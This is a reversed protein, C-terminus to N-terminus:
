KIDYDGGTWKQAIKNLTGDAKIKKIIPDIAAKLENGQKDKNLVFVSGSKNFPNGIMQVNVGNKKVIADTMVKDGLTADARGAAIDEYIDPQSNESYKLKLQNGNAANWQELFTTKSDGVSVEVIKGKLDDLTTIDTRGKKVIIFTPTSFYSESFIFTKEREPTANMQDAIIQTKNAQLSPVVTAWPGTVFEFKYQPLQKNIEKIVDVDYGTIEGSSDVYDFPPYDNQTAVYIIKPKTSANATETKPKSTSCGSLVGVLLISSLSLIILYKIKKM